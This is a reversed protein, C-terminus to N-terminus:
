NNKLRENLEPKIAKILEREINKYDKIHYFYLKCEKKEKATQCIYANIHCNTRTGYKLKCNGESIKGYQERSWRVALNYTSGIYVPKDDDGVFLAYVGSKGQAEDVNFRCYKLKGFQHTESIPLNYEDIIMNGNDDTEPKIVDIFSFPYNGIEKDM